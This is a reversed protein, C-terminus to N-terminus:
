AKEMNIYDSICVPHKDEPLIQQFLCSPICWWPGGNGWSGLEKNPNESYVCLCTDNDRAIYRLDCAYFQRMVALQDNDFFIKPTKEDEFKLKHISKNVCLEDEHECGCCPDRFLEHRHLCFLQVHELNIEKM